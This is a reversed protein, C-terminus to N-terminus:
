RESRNLLFEERIVEVLVEPADEQLFHGADALMRMPADPWVERWRAIAVDSALAPDHAGFVLAMPKEALASRVRANLAVLWDESATIQRPLEALGRRSEPTPVVARYHHLEAETLEVRLLNPLWREILLNQQRILHQVPWSGMLGSFFRPKLETAPWFFTNGMVLGGIRDPTRSAVDLGIPGGWDQGMVVLDTLGLYDVLECVILAHEAPTYGYREPHVSLGFGPFDLSVCRFGDTLSPIMKRYLFCWDPNGHLLLLPRGRGEDIFHIPGVSSQFWKSQFPFLEPSPTFDVVDPPRDALIM